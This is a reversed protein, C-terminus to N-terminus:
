YLLIVFYLLKYLVIMFHLTACNYLFGVFTILNILYVRYVFFLFSSCFTVEFYDCFNRLHANCLQMDAYPILLSLV